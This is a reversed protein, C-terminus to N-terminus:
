STVTPALETGHSYEGVSVALQMATLLGIVSLKELELETVSPSIPVPVVASYLAPAPYSRAVPSPLMSAYLRTVLQSLIANAAEEVVSPMIGEEVVNACPVARVMLPATVPAPVGPPSTASIVSLVWCNCAPCVNKM